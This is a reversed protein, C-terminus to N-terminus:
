KSSQLSQIIESLREIVPGIDNQFQTRILAQLVNGSKIENIENELESLRAQLGKVTQNTETLLSEFKGTGKFEQALDSQVLKRSLEDGQKYGEDLYFRVAHNLLDTLTVGDIQRIKDQAEKKLSKDMWFTTASRNDRSKSSSM